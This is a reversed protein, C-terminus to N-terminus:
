YHQLTVWSNRWTKSPSAWTFHSVASCFLLIHASGKRLGVPCQLCASGARGWTDREGHQLPLPQAPQGAPAWLCCSEGAGWSCGAAQTCEGAQGLGVCVGVRAVSSGDRPLCSHSPSTLLEEAPHASGRAQPRSCLHPAHAATDVVRASRQTKSENGTAAPRNEGETLKCLEQSGHASWALRWYSGLRSNLYLLFRYVLRFYSKHVKIFIVPTWATLWPPM